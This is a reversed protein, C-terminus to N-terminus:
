LGEILLPILLIRYISYFLPTPGSLIKYAAYSADYVADYAADCALYNNLM